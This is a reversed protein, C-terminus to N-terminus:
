SADQGESPGYLRGRHRLLYRDLKESPRTCRGHKNLEEIYTDLASLLLRMYDHQDRLSVKNFSGKSIYQTAYILNLRVAEVRPLSQFQQQWFDYESYGPNDKTFQKALAPSFLDPHELWLIRRLGHRTYFRDTAGMVLLFNKIRGGM